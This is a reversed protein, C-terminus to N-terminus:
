ESEQTNKTSSKSDAISSRSNQDLKNVFQDLPVAGGKVKRYVGGLVEMVNASGTWQGSELMKVLTDHEQTTLILVMQDNKM